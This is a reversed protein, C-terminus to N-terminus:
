RDRTVGPELQDIVHQRLAPDVQRDHMARRTFADVDDRRSVPVDVDSAPMTVGQAVAAATGVLRYERGAPIRDLLTALVIWLRNRNM